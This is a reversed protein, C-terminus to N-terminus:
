IYIYTYVTKKKIIFVRNSLFGTLKSSSVVVNVKVLNIPNIIHGLFM